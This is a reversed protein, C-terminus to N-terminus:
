ILDVAAEGQKHRAGARRIVGLARRLEERPARATYRSRGKGVARRTAGVIDFARELVVETFEPMIGDKTVISIVEDGKQEGESEADKEPEPSDQAAEQADEAAEWYRDEEDNLRNLAM